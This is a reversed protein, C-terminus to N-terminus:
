GADRITEGFHRIRSQLLGMDKTTSHVRQINVPVPVTKNLAAAVLMAVARKLRIEPRKMNM